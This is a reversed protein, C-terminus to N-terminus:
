PIKVGWKVKLANLVFVLIGGITLSQVDTSLGVALGAILFVITYKLAKIIGRKISYQM